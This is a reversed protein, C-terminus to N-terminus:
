FHLRPQKRGLTVSSQILGDPAQEGIFDRGTLWCGQPFRCASTARLPLITILFNCYTANYQTVKIKTSKPASAVKACSTVAVIVPVTVSELPAAIAPAVTVAVETSRPVFYVASVFSDPM